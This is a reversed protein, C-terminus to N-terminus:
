GNKEANNNYLSNAPTNTIVAPDANANCTTASTGNAFILSASVRYIMFFMQHPLTTGFFFVFVSDVVVCVSILVMFFSFQNIIRHARFHSPHASGM